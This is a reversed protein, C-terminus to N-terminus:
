RQLTSSVRIRHGAGIRRGQNVVLAKSQMPKMSVSGEDALSLLRNRAIMRCQGARGWHVSRSLCLAIRFISKQKVRTVRPGIHTLM